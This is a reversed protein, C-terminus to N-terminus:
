SPQSAKFIKPMQWDSPIPATDADDDPTAQLPASFLPPQPFSFPSPAQTRGPIQGGNRLLFALCEFTTAGVKPHSLNNTTKYIEAVLNSAAQPSVKIQTKQILETVIETYNKNAQQFVNGTFNVPALSNSICLVKATDLFKKEQAYIPGLEELSSVAFVIVLDANAGSYGFTVKSSDPAPSSEKPHVVISFKGLHDVEYDVKELNSELFDFSIHLNKNGISSKLEQIGSVNDLDPLDGSYGIQSEKGSNKLTLHLSLASSVIASDPDPPLVILFSNLSNFLGKLVSQENEEM